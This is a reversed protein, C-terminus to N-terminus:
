LDKGDCIESVGRAPNSCPCFRLEPKSSQLQATTIVVIGRCWQAASLSATTKRWSQAM